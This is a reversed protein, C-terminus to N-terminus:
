RVVQVCVPAPVEISKGTPSLAGTAPDIAYIEVSDSDRCACLLFKGDPTITFNRPHIGTPQYSVPTVLGSAADVSFVAM